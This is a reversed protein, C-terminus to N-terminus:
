AANLDRLAGCTPCYPGRLHRPHMCAPCRDSGDTLTKEIASACYRYFLLVIWVTILVTAILISFSMNAITRRPRAAPLEM